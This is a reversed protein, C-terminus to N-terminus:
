MWATKVTARVIQDSGKETFLVRWPRDERREVDAGAWGVIEGESNRCTFIFPLAGFWTATGGERTCRMFMSMKEPHQVELAWPPVTGPVDHGAREIPKSLQITTLRRSWPDGLCGVDDDDGGFQWCPDFVYSATFCRFTGPDTSQM